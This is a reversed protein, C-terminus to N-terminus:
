WPDRAARAAATPLADDPSSLRDVVAIVGDVREARRVLIRARGPRRTMHKM